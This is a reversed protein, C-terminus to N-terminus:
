VFARVGRVCAVCVCAACARVRHWKAKQGEAARRTRLIEELARGALLARLGPSSFRSQRVASSMTPEMGKAPQGGSGYQCVPLPGLCGVSRASTSPPPPTSM